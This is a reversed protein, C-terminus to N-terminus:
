PDHLEETYLDLSRKRTAQAFPTLLIAYLQTLLIVFLHQQKYFPQLYLLIVFLCNNNYNDNCLISCHCMLCPPCSILCMNIKVKSAILSSM